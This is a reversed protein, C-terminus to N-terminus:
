PIFEKVDAATTYSKFNLLSTVESTEESSFKGSNDSLIREM